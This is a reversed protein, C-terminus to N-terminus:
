VSCTLSLGRSFLPGSLNCCLFGWAPAHEGLSGPVLRVSVPKLVHATPLLGAQTAATLKVFSVSEQLPPVAPRHSRNSPQSAGITTGIRYPSTVHKDVPCRVVELSGAAPRQATCRGRKTESAGRDGTTPIVAVPAERHKACLGGHTLM